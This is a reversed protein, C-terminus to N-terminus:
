SIEAVVEDGDEPHAPPKTAGYSIVPTLSHPYEECLACYV